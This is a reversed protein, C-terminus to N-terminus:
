PKINEIEKILLSIDSEPIGKMPSAVVSTLGRTHFHHPRTNVDWLDDYNDFRMIDDPTPSFIVLYTYEGYDNYRLHIIIESQLIIKLVPRDKLLNVERILHSYKKIILDFAAQLKERATMM